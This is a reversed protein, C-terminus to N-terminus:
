HCMGFLFRILLLPGESANLSCMYQRANSRVNNCDTSLFREATFNRMFILQQVNRRIIQVGLVYDSSNITFQGDGLVTRDCCFTSNATCERSSTTNVMYSRRPTFVLQGEGRRTANMSHLIFVQASDQLASQNIVGYCYEVAEVGGSCNRCGRPFVAPFSPPMVGRSCNKCGTPSVAPFPTAM